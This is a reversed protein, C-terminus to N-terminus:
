AAVAPAPRPRRNGLGALLAAVDPGKLAEGTELFAERAVDVARRDDMFAVGMCRAVEARPEFVVSRIGARRLARREVALRMRSHHRIAAEPGALRSAEGAMPAVIVALDVGGRLVDANTPSHAGGDIYRRGGIRVPAFHGPIACSAALALALPAGASRDFVVRQCNRRDVACVLLEPTPWAEGFAGQNLRLEEVLDTRGDPLLNVLADLPRFEWPRAAWRLLLEPDLPRPLFDSPRFARPEPPSPRRRLEEVIAAPTDWAEGGVTVAALDTPAAGLRLLAGVLSGASTGVVVDARRADWGLDHHLAALVGAHYAVGLVGGGGLVLATPM